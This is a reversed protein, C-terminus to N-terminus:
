GSWISYCSESCLMIVERRPTSSPACSNVSKVRIVSVNRTEIVGITGQVDLLCVNLPYKVSLLIHRVMVIGVMLKHRFVPRCITWYIFQCPPEVGTKNDIKGFLDPM